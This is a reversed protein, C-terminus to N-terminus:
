WDASRFFVLVLGNTGSLSSRDRERGNQDKLGIEPAPVGAALGVDSADSLLTRVAASDAELRTTFSVPALLLTLFVLVRIERCLHMARDEIGHENHEIPVSYILRRPDGHPGDGSKPLLPIACEGLVSEPHRPAQTLPM